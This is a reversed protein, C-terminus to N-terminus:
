SKYHNAIIIYIYIFIIFHSFANIHPYINYYINYTLFIVQNGSSNIETTISVIRQRDEARRGLQRPRCTLNSNNENFYDNSFIIDDDLSSQLQHINRQALSNLFEDALSIQPDIIIDNPNNNNNTNNNNSNINISDIIPDYIENNSESIVNNDNSDRSNENYNQLSSSSSPDNVELDITNINEDIRNEMLNDYKSIKIKNNSIINNNSIIIDDIMEYDDSIEINFNNSTDNFPNTLPLATSSTSSSTSPPLPLISNNQIPNLLKEPITIPTAKRM